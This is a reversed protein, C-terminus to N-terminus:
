IAIPGTLAPQLLKRPQYIAILLLLRPHRPRFHLPNPAVSRLNHGLSADLPNSLSRTQLQHFEIVGDPRTQIGVLVGTHSSPETTNAEGKKTILTSRLVCSFLTINSQLVCPSANPFGRATTPGFPARSLPKPRRSAM